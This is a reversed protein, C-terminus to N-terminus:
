IPRGARRAELMELTAWYHELKLQGERAALLGPDDHARTRLERVKSLKDAADVALAWSGCAAVQRRLQAKREGFSEIRPDESLAGVVDAIEAGFRARIEAVDASGAELTEHLVGCAVAVDPYGASDLLAAVELPHLIFPAEDSERLQGRHQEQAYEAARRALPLSELFSPLSTALAMTM